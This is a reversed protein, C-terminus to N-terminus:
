PAELGAIRLIEDTSWEPYMLSYRSIGRECALSIKRAASECDDFLVFESGRELTIYSCYLAESFFVDGDPLRSLYEGHGDRCPLRFVHRLRELDLLINEAGYRRCADDIRGHFSGGTVAASLLVGAGCEPLWAEETLYVGVGQRTLGRCLLIVDVARSAEFGAIVAAFGRERCLAAIADAADASVAGGVALMGGRIGDPPADFGDFRCSLHVPTLPLKGTSNYDGDSAAVFIRKKM